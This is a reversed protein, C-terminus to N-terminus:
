HTFRNLKSTTYGSGCITAYLNNNLILFKCFYVGGGGPWLRFTGKTWTDGAIDYSDLSLFGGSAPNFGMTYVTNDDGFIIESRIDNGGVGNDGCFKVWTAATFDWMIVDRTTSWAYIKDKYFIPMSSGGGAYIPVVESWASGVKQFIKGQEVMWLEDNQYFLGDPWTQTGRQNIDHTMTGSVTDWHDLGGSSSTMYIVGSSPIEAMKTGSNLWGSGTAVVDMAKTVPNYKLLSGSPCGLYVWTGYYMTGDAAQLTGWCNHHNGVITLDITTTNTLTDFKRVYADQGGINQDSAFAFIDTGIFHLDNSSGDKGFIGEDVVGTPPEIIKTNIPPTTPQTFITYDTDAGTPTTVPRLFNKLGECNYMTFPKSSQQNHAPYFNQTEQNNVKRSYGRYSGGIFPIKMNVMWLTILLNEM